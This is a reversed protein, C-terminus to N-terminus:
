STRLWAVDPFKASHISQTGTRTGLVKAVILEAASICSRERWMCNNRTRFVPKNALPSVPLPLVKPVPILNVSATLIIFTITRYPLPKTNGM